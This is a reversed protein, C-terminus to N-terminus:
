IDVPSRNLSRDFTTARLPLNRKSFKGKWRLAETREKYSSLQSPAHAKALGLNDFEIEKILPEYALLIETRYSFSMGYVTTEAMVVSTGVYRSGVISSV